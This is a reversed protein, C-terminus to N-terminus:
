CNSCKWWKWFDYNKKKRKTTDILLNKTKVIKECIDSNPMASQSFDELYKRIFDKDSM